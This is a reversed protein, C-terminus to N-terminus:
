NKSSDKKLKSIVRDLIFYISMALVAQFVIEILWFDIKFYEVILDSLIFSISFCIFDIIATLSKKSKKQRIESFFTKKIVKKNLEKREQEAKINDM